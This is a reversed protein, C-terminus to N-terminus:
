SSPENIITTFGRAKLFAPWFWVAKEDGYLIEWRELVDFINIEGDGWASHSWYMRVPKGDAIVIVKKSVEIEGVKRKKEQQAPNMGCFQEHDDLLEDEITNQCYQCSAMM